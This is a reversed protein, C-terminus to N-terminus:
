MLIYIEITKSSKYGCNFLRPKLGTSNSPNLFFAPNFTEGVGLKRQDSM